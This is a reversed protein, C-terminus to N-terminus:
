TQYIVIANEVSVAISQIKLLPPQIVPFSPLEIVGLRDGPIVIGDVSQYGDIISRAAL